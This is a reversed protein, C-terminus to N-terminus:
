QMYRDICTNFNMQWDRGAARARNAEGICKVCIDTTGYVTLDSKVLAKGLSALAFCTKKQEETVRTSPAFPSAGDSDSYFAMWVAVSLAIVVVVLVGAVTYLALRVPASFSHKREQREQRVWPLASGISAAPAAVTPM